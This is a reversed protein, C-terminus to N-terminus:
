KGKNAGLALRAEISRRNQWAGTSLGHLDLSVGTMTNGLIMGLMRIAYRPDFWPDPRVQKTLVFVTVLISATMM